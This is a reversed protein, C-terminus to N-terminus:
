KGRVMMATKDASGKSSGFFYQVVAGFCVGLNGILLMVADRSGPPIVTTRFILLATVGFFGAVILCGLIYMLMNSGGSKQIDVERQRASQRDALHAKTTEFTLDALKEKYTFELEKIKLLASPDSAIASHIAEPTEEVGLASAVMATVAGAAPGGFLTAIMPAVGGVTKGIDKWNIKM